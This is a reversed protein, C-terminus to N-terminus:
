DRTCANNAWDLVNKIDTQLNRDSTLLAANALEILGAASYSTGRVTFTRLYVPVGGIEFTSSGGSQSYLFNLSFAALHRSLQCRMDTANQQLLVKLWSKDSGLSSATGTFNFDVIHGASNRGVLNLSTLFQLHFPYILAQGNRNGWFGPTCGCGYSICPRCTYGFDFRLDEFGAVTPVDDETADLSETDSHPTLL